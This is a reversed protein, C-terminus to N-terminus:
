NGKCILRMGRREEGKRYDFTVHRVGKMVAVERVSETCKGVGSLMKFLCPFRYLFPAPNTLFDSKTAISKDLCSRASCSAYIYMSPVKRLMMGSLREAFLRESLLQSGACVNEARLEM